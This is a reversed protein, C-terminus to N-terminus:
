RMPSCSPHMCIWGRKFMPGSLRRPSRMAKRMQSSGEDCQAPMSSWSREELERRSAEYLETARIGIGKLEHSLRVMTSYAKLRQLRAYEDFPLIVAEPEGRRTIIVLEERARKLLACFDKRAEAISIKLAM